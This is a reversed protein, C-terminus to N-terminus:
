IVIEQKIENLNPSEYIRCSIQGYRNTGIKYYIENDYKNFDTEIKGIYVEKDDGHMNKFRQYLTIRGDQPFPKLSTYDEYKSNKSVLVKFKKNELKIGIDYSIRDEIELSGDEDDLAMLYRVAGNCVSSYLEDEDIDDESFIDEDDIYDELIKQFYKIRSSGGIMRVFSIEDKETDSDYLIEDLIRIIKERIEIEEFWKYIKDKEITFIVSDCKYNFLADNVIIEVVEEEEIFLLEKKYSIEGMITKEIEKMEEDNFQSIDIKPLFYNEYIYKDISNGGFDIGMSGCIEIKKRDGSEEYEFLAFDLTGGGFDFILSKQGDELEDLVGYEIAAAVPETIIAKLELQVDKAAGRIIDKQVESFNVPVTIVTATIKKDGNDKSIKEKITRLIDAVVDRSNKNSDLNEIKKKWSELELKRKIGIVTNKYSETLGREGIITEGKESYFVINKQLKDGQGHQTVISKMKPNKQGELLTSVKLNTNGFDIGLYLKSM